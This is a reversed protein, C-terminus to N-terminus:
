IFAGIIEENTIVKEARLKITLSCLAEIRTKHARAEVFIPDTYIGKYIPVYSRSAFYEWVTCDYYSNIKLRYQKKNILEELNLRHHLLIKIPKIGLKDFFINKNM